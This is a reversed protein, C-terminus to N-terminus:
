IEPRRFFAMPPDRFVDAMRANTHLIPLHKRVLDKLVQYYTTVLSVRDTHSKEKYQLLSLRDQRAMEDIVTQVKCHNYGRNTLHKKLINGQEQFSTPSSCIRRIRIALGKPVGKFTHPPHCSSPMLYLHSDMPKTHLNFEIEGNTFTATTDLFTNKSNGIDVTFTISNHFSNAVDIFDNLSERGDVWKMEIDDIFRLWSLPKTSSYFLLRLELRGTFINAYSPTM